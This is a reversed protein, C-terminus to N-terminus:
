GGTSHKDSRCFLVDGSQGSEDRSCLFHCSGSALLHIMLEQDGLAFNQTEGWAWSGCCWAEKGRSGWNELM